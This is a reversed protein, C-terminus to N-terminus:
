LFFVILCCFANKSLGKIPSKKTHLFGGRKVRPHYKANPSYVCCFKVALSDKPYWHPFGRCNLQRTTRALPTGWLFLSYKKKKVRWRQSINLKHRNVAESALAFLFLRFRWWYILLYLLNKRQTGSYKSKWGLFNIPTWNRETAQMEFQHNWIKVPWLRIFIAM